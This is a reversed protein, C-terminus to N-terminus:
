PLKVTVVKNVTKDEGYSVMCNFDYDGKALPRKTVVPILKQMNAGPILSGWKEEEVSLIEEGAKDKLSWTSIPKLFVNGENKLSVKFFLRGEEVVKEIKEIKLSSQFQGPIRIWVAISFRLKVKLAFAAQGKKAKSADDIAGGEGKEKQEGPEINIFGFYDGPALGSPVNIEFEAKKSRNKEINLDKNVIKIWNGVLKNQFDMSKGILTGDETNEVDSSYVQVYQNDTVNNIVSLSGKLIKNPETEYYFYNLKKANDPSEIRIEVTSAGSKSYLFLNFLIFLVIIKIFKKFFNM